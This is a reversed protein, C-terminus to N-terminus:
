SRQRFQCTQRPRNKGPRAIGIRRQHQEHQGHQTPEGAKMLETVAVAMLASGDFLHVFGRARDIEKPLHATSKADVTQDGRYLTLAAKM